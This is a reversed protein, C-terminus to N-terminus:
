VDERVIVTVDTNGIAGTCDILIADVVPQSAVSGQWYRGSAVEAGAEGAVSGGLPTGTAGVSAPQIIRSVPIADAAQTKQINIYEIIGGQTQFIWPTRNTAGRGLYALNLFDGAAVVVFYKWCGGGLNVNNADASLPGIQGVAM